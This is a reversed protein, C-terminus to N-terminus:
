PRIELWDLAWMPDLRPRAFRVCLDHRGPKAPLTVPSLTRTWENAPVETVPQVAVPDGECGDIRVELEGEVTRADGVRIKQADAGIEFNFPLQVVAATLRAGNTLDVDRYIWCPNMIDLALIPREGPGVGNPELLLSVGDSCLDLERSGRRALTSADLKRRWTGSVPKEDVFTAARLETGMPLQLPSSYAPSASTPDRGDTTYRIKGIGGQNALTAHVGSPESSVRADIAFVSDAYHLGLARYHEFMRPLRQVFEPWHRRERATWGVEAVAAARPLAMWELRDETRIHETWLNAQVGMIHKQQADSLAPDRLEFRYVDELSIVRMRGPPESALASQQNDFYLTPWPSLVTDNGAIAAQRAGETGRWSMVIADSSLGPRLIEDWGVLRRGKSVLFRGIEQTFWTQLAEEDAIGLAKARAQVAPSAKWQDKVAEDGGVHIYPSPFLAIVEALVDELFTFTAPDLNFLYTHVGWKASVPPAPGSLSGLAPYAAIPAQAHGPMEIEPIVQVHRSAAHKVIDRVEAQTYYGGYRPAKQAGATAPERWAGIETLRPYKRIEIRWGQDDTLHWHLVNLKHLAMWDIMSKVFAASQFHRASDLMLGRWAYAPADQITQAPIAIAGQGAPVLQWLTVAGYFLGAGTTATIRVGSPSVTLGYEESGLGPKREFTIARPAAAGDRRVTLELARSRALLDVFYQAANEAETDGQPVRVLTQPGLQFEGERSLIGVPLPVVPPPPAAACASGAGLFLLAAFAHAGRGM